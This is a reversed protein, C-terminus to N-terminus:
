EDAEGCERWEGGEGGRRGGSRVREQGVHGLRAVELRHEAAHQVSCAGGTRGAPQDRDLHGGRGPGLMPAVRWLLMAMFLNSPCTAITVPPADPMPSAMQRRRARSPAFTTM